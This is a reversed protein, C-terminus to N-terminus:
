VEEEEEELENYEIEGRVENFVGIEEETEVDYIVNDKTRLYMKGKYDFRKVKVVEDEVDVEVDVRKSDKKPRGRKKEVLCGIAMLLEEQLNVMKKKKCKMYEKKKMEIKKKYVKVFTYCFLQQRRCCFKIIKNNIYITSKHLYLYARPTGPFPM